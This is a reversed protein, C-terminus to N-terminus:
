LALAGTFLVIAHYGVVLVLGLGLLLALDALIHLIM